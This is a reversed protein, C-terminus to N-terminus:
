QVPSNFESRSATKTGAASDALYAMRFGVLKIEDAVSDGIFPEADAPFNSSLSSGL